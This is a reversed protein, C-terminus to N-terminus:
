KDIDRAFQQTTQCTLVERQGQHYPNLIMMVLREPIGLKVVFSVDLFLHCFPWFFGFCHQLCQGYLNLNAPNAVESVHFAMKPAFVIKQVRWIKLFNNKRELINTSLRIKEAMVKNKQSPTIQLNCTPIQFLTLHRLQNVSRRFCSM